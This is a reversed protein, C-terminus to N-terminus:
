FFLINEVIIKGKKKLPIIYNNMFFKYIKKKFSFKYKEDACKWISIIMKGRYRYYQAKKKFFINLRIHTNGGMRKEGPEIQSWLNSLGEHLPTQVSGRSNMLNEGWDQQVILLLSWPDSGRGILSTQQTRDGRKEHMKVSFKEQKTSEWQM